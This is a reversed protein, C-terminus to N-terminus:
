RTGGCREGRSHSLKTTLGSHGDNLLMARRIPQIAEDNLATFVAVKREAEVTELGVGMAVNKGLEGTKGNIRGNSCVDIRQQASTSKNADSADCTLNSVHPNRVVRVWVFVLWVILGHLESVPVSSWCGLLASSGVATPANMIVMVSLM